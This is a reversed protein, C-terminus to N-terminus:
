IEKDGLAYNCKMCNNLCMCVLVSELWIVLLTWEFNNRMRGRERKREEGIEEKKNQHM